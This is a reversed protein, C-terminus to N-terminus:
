AATVRSPGGTCRYCGQRRGNRHCRGRGPCSSPHITATVQFPAPAQRCGSRYSWRFTLGGPRPGLQQKVGVALDALGSVRAVKGFYDPATLRLETKSALGFRLLTEPGDFNRQAQNVTEAFGNEAQLSGPPVVVSSDTVAPRDTTIPATTADSGAAQRSAIAIVVSVALLRVM